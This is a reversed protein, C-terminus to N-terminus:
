VPSIPREIGLSLDHEVAAGLVHQFHAAFIDRCCLYLRHQVAMRRHLQRLDDAQGIRAIDFHGSGEDFQAGPSRALSCSSMSWQLPLSALKLSGRWTRKTVRTASTWMSSGSTGSAPYARNGFKRSFVAHRGSAAKDGAQQHLRLPPVIEDRELDLELPQDELMFGIRHDVLQKLGVFIRVQEMADRGKAILRREVVVHM